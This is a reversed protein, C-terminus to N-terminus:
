SASASASVPTGDASAPQETANAAVAPQQEAEGSGVKISIKTPTKEQPHPIKIELVGLDYSAEIAAPDTGEPLLVHREFTGTFRERRVLGDTREDIDQQRQGRVVLTGDVVSIDVDEPRVGPVEIRVWLAHDRHFADLAPGFFRGQGQGQVQAAAPRLADNVQKELVALERWPDWQLRAM